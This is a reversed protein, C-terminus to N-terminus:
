KGKKGKGGQMEDIANTVLKLNDAAYALVNQLPQDLVQEGVAAVTATNLMLLDRIGSLVENTKAVGARLEEIKTDLVGDNHLVKKIEELIKGVDDGGSSKSPEGQNGSNRPTRKPPDAVPATQQIPVSIPASAGNTPAPIGGQSQLNKLATLVAGAQEETTMKTFSEKTEPTSRLGLEDALSGLNFRGARTLQSLDLPATAITLKAVSAM